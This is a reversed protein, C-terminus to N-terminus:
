ALHETADVMCIACDAIEIAALVCDETFAREIAIPVGNAACFGQIATRVFDDRRTEICGLRQEIKEGDQETLEARLARNEELLTAGEIRHESLEGQQSRIKKLLGARNLGM